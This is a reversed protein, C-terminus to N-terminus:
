RRRPCPASIPLPPLPFPRQLTSPCTEETPFSDLLLTQPASCTPRYATLKAADNEMREAGLQSGRERAVGVASGFGGADGRTEVVLSGVDNLLTSHVGFREVGHALKERPLRLLHAIQTPLRALVRPLSTSFLRSRQQILHRIHPLHHIVVQSLQLTDDTLLPDLHTKRPAEEETKRGRARKFSARAM